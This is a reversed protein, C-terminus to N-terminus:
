KLFFPALTLAAGIVIMSTLDDIFYPFFCLLAGIILLMPKGQNKGYVFYGAGFAGFIM